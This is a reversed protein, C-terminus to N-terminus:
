IEFAKEKNGRILMHLPSDYLFFINIIFATIPLLECILLINWLKSTELQLIILISVIVMFLPGIAFFAYILQLRFGRSNSPVYERLLNIM